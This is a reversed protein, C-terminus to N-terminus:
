SIKKKASHRRISKITLARRKRRQSRLLNRENIIDTAELLDRAVYDPRIKWGRMHRRDERGSLVFITTCGANHGTLIDSETDGVFFAKQALQLTKNSSELAERIAGIEPKRCECGSHSFHTCYLVKKIRGGVSRIDRLMNHTIHELKKKSYLGKAVGAQNSVVFISYGEKTLIRLADLSGPIFRFEKLKTVYEGNGPFQNIVGDRDLFVVKM